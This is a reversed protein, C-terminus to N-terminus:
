LLNFNKFFVNGSLPDDKENIYPKRGNFTLFDTVFINKMLDLDRVLLMPSFSSWIGVVKEEKFDNYIDTLSLHIKGSLLTRGIDGFPFKATTHPINLKKWFKYKQRLSLYAAFFILATIIGLDSCWSATLIAM